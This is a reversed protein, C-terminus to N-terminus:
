LTDFCVQLLQIESYVSSSLSAHKRLSKKSMIKMAYLINTDVDQALKVVSFAGRGLTRILRYGAFRIGPVGLWQHYKSTCNSAPGLHCSSVPEHNEGHESLAPSPPLAASPVSLYRQKGVVPVPAYKSDLIFPTPLLYSHSTSSPSPSRSPTMSHRCPDHHSSKRSGHERRRRNNTSHKALLRPSRKTSSDLSAQKRRDFSNSQRDNLFTATSVVTTPAHWSSPQQLSAQFSSSLLSSDLSAQKRRDCSNAQRDNLFTATTSPAHWSSPQQLQLLSQGFRAGADVLASCSRSSLRHHPALPANDMGALLPSSGNIQIIPKHLSAAFHPPAPRDGDDDSSPHQMSQSKSSSPSFSLSTPLDVDKCTDALQAM